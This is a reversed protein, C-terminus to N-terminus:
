HYNIEELTPNIIKIGIEKANLIEQENDEYIIVSEPEIKLKAIAETYKNASSHPNHFITRTFYDALNYYNLLMLAREKHCNTVLICDNTMHCIQLIEFIKKNLETACLYHCYEREKITIIAEIEDNGFYPFENILTARTFRENPNYTITCQGRTIAEISSKYALFNAYDTEVLTGDLDFLITNRDQITYESSFIIMLRCSGLGVGSCQHNIYFSLTSSIESSKYFTTTFVRFFVFSMWYGVSTCIHPIPPHLIGKGCLGSLFSHQGDDKRGKFIVM